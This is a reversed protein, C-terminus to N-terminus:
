TQSVTRISVVHDPNIVLPFLGGDEPYILLDRTNPHLHAHDPHPLLYKEGTSVTIEVPFGVPRGMFRELSARM